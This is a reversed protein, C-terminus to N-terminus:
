RAGATPHPLSSTQEPPEGCHKDLQIVKDAGAEDPTEGPFVIGKRTPVGNKELAMDSLDFSMKTGNPPFYLQYHTAVSPWASEPADELPVKQHKSLRARLAVRGDEDFLIVLSPLKTSRDYWIEKQAAYRPPHAMPAVWVFMYADADPNYRMVPAPSATFDTNFLGVGLVEFVMNPQVPVSQVCPKGLNEYKGWWMQNLKTDNVKLWYREETSGIEFVRGVGVKNGAVLMGMPRRFLLAGDGNIFHSEKKDDILTAEYSQRAWLTPLRLNAANIDSVVKAMADTVPPPEVKEVHACGAGGALSLGVAFLITRAYGM